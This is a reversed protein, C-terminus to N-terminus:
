RALQVGIKITHKGIKVSTTLTRLEQGGIIPIM